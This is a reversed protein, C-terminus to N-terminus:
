KVENHRLWERMGHRTRESEFLDVSVPRVNSYGANQLDTKSFNTDIITGTDDYAAYFRKGNKGIQGRFIDENKARLTRVSTRTPGVAMIENSNRDISVWIFDSSNSM